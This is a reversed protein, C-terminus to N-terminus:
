LMRTLPKRRSTKLDSLRQNIRTGISNGTDFNISVNNEKVSSANKTPSTDLDYLLMDYALPLVKSKIFTESECSLYEVILAEGKHLKKLFRLRGNEKDLIYNEPCICKNDVKVKHISHVPYHKLNYDRSDWNFNFDVDTHPTPDLELGTESAIKDFQVQLLSELNGSENELSINHSTLFHELAQINIDQM